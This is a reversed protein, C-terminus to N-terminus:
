RFFSQTKGPSFLLKGRYPSGELFGSSLSKERYPLVQGLATFTTKEGQLPSTVRFPLIRPPVM